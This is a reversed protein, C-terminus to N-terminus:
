IKVVKSWSQIPSYSAVREASTTCALSNLCNACPSLREVGHLTRGDYLMVVRADHSPLFSNWVECRLNFHASYTDDVHQLVLMPAKSSAMSRHARGVTTQALWRQVALKLNTQGEAQQAEIYSQLSSLM